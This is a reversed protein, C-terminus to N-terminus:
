RRRRLAQQIEDELSDGSESQTADEEPKNFPLDDDEEEMDSSPTTDPTGGNLITAIEDYTKFKSFQKLDNLCEEWDEYGIASEKRATKVDYETKMGSGTKTIILDLGQTPDTIDGYDPDVIYNLVDKLIGIGTGLVKVPSGQKEEGKDDKYYMKGDDKKYYKTLDDARSIANFYVRKKRGMDRAMKDYKDGAKQSLQRLQKVTECIPCNMHDGATTPCIVTQGKNDGTKGVGYHTFVEEFFMDADNKPPLIRVVNRGDQIALFDAGGSKNGGKNLDALREAIKSIDLAM